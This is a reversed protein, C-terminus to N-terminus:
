HGRLARLIALPPTGLLLTEATVLEPPTSESGAGGRLALWVKGNDSSFALNAAQKDTLRLLVKTSNSGLGGNKGGIAVVPADTIIRKLVARAIGGAVPTGNPGIPVVNFGAFVDVHSGVEVEGILGHASDLPIAVIRETSTLNSTLAKAGPAFAAATLQAGKVIEHAAVKGNMSAPDSFAGERLESERMTTRTFLHKSAIVTGSTGKPIDEGAILATVPAGESKVSNRYGNLYVLILIGALLAAAGAVILTGRKTSILKNALQM